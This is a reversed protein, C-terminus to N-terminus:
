PSCNLATCEICGYPFKGFNSFYWDGNEYYAEVLTDMSGSVEFTGCGRIWWRNGGLKEVSAPVFKNLRSYFKKELFTDKTLIGQDKKYQNSLLDYVKDWEQTAHYNVFKDLRLKLEARKSSPVRYFPDSKQRYLVTGGSSSTAAVPTLIVILIFLIKM